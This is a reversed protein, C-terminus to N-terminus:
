SLASVPCSKAAAILVDRAGGRKLVSPSVEVDGEETIDHGAVARGPRWM